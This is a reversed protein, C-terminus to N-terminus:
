YKSAQEILLYEGKPACLCLHKGQDFFAKEKSFM